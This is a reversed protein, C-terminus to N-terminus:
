PAPLTKGAYVARLDGRQATKKWFRSAYSL